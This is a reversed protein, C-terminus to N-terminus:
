IYYEKKYELWLEYLEDESAKDIHSIFKDNIIMLRNKYYRRCDDFSKFGYIAAIITYDDGTYKDIIKSLVYKWEEESSSDVLSKLLVYEFEMPTSFYNFAGDTAAIIIVPTNVEMIKEYLVFDFDANIVNSLRSDNRLNSFADESTELNDESVQRLGKEDLFYCRSDGAWLFGCLLKDSNDSYVTVIAATTPLSKFFDGGIEMEGPVKLMEKVDTFLEKYMKGLIKGDSGDLKFGGKESFDSTIKAALASAIRAGSMYNHEAYKKSGMGGCGDFVSIYGIDGDCFSYSFNDEGADPIQESCIGLVFEPMMHIGEEM